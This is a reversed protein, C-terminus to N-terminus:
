VFKLRFTQIKWPGLRIDFANAEHPVIKGSEEDLSAETVETLPQFCTFLATAPVGSMNYCRVILEDEKGNEPRKIVSACIDSGSLEFYSKPEAPISNEGVKVISPHLDAQLCEQLRVLDAFSASDDLVALAYKFTLRGTIQGGEEGDTLRTKSFSRFMTVHISGREDDPAACEHLGFASVFALGTGDRRRKGVIGGMQKEPVECEKWNQTETRIGTHREVFAFPQNAFFSSTPVGTPVVLRLRHDRAQNDIETKIDVHAAGKSLGILSHITLVVREDSRRLGHPLMEMSRPVRLEHTIRFVTRVPGNEVTEITCAAGRSTIQRDEVPNVHYWGDGIEGDDLYSLLEDYLIGNQKDYLAITGNDRITLKIWENEAEREQRSLPQLYRSPKVSPVIKYQVAGMAPVDVEMSVTHRDASRAEAGLGRVTMQKRMRCLGYPIEEGRHDHITFSNILEYGFPEQYQTPYNPEFDIDVTVVSRRPFPLPNWLTLMRAGGSSETDPKASEKSLITKIVQLSIEKAQDFRYQMDRHVQDISCGCISDHPHNQLLYKYALDVFAKQVPFGRLASLAALPEVWKELLVQCEDNAKKLPYRSSLTHTILYNSGPADKGPENLEGTIVPMEQRYPELQEGMRELNVHRVDAEPYLDRIMDLYYATNPRIRAHDQCDMLLCVPIPSRKLEREIATQILQKTDEPSLGRREAEMLVVLFAGYSNADQLKFTICESGDPSRWRFHAPADHENVGRGLLAYSIGFGSFIQPMQAIHGFIDCVYGYRWPEVGWEKCIRRGTLLNRILSEGSLLYEDPMVYWPGIVIRGDQILRALRERKAPEIELFDELVITQGDLHFTAFEPRRELEDIMENMVAVLWFRFGQFSEYWERDWHTSSFYYISPKTM